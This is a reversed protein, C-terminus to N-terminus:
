IAHQVPDTSAGSRWSSQLLLTLSEADISSDVSALITAHEVPSMDCFFFDLESENAVESNIGDGGNVNNAFRQYKM